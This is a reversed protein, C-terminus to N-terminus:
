NGVGVLPTQGQHIGLFGFPPLLKGFGFPFTRRIWPILHPPERYGSM